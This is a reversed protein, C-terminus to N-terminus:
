GSPTSKSRCSKRRNRNDDLVARYIDLITATIKGPDHRTIATQHANRGLSEALKADTIVRCVKESFQGINGAEFLLGNFRDRVMSTIGGVKSAVCPVGVCMAEALSNPSNDIYTPHVYVTAHRLEEAIQGASLVGLFKVKDAVNLKHALGRIYGGWGHRHCDGAVRLQCSPLRNAVSAFMYIM